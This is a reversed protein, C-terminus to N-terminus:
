GGDRAVAPCSFGAAIFARKTQPDSNLVRRRMDDRGEAEEIIEAARRGAEGDGLKSAFCRSREPPAGLRLMGSEIRPSFAGEGSSCGALALAAL